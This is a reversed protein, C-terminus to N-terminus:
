SLFTYLEWKALDGFGEVMDLIITDGLVIIAGVVTIGPSVNMGSM